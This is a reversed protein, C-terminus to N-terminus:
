VKYLYRYVSKAFNYGFIRSLLIYYVLLKIGHKISLIKLINFKSTWKGLYLSLRYDRILQIYFNHKFVPLLLLISYSNAVVQCHQIFDNFWRRKAGISNNNHQRYYILPENLFKIHGYFSAVIALYHDHIYFGDPIPLALALLKKSFLTTCGTVNNSILYDVFQTKRCDINAQIVNSKAIIQMNSDALIADSHILLSNGINHLLKELKDSFWVDDQDALAIFYGNCLSLAIAFTKVIGINNKNQILKIWPFQMQYQQIITVTNDSSCDDVIIIEINQHTQNVISDLQSALYLEGNYTAMAISILM